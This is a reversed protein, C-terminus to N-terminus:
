TNRASYGYTVDMQAERLAEIAAREQRTRDKEHNWGVLWGKCARHSHPGPHKRSHRRRFNV